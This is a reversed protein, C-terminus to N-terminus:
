QELGLIAQAIDGNSKELAKRADDESCKAQEMVLRVDDGRDKEVKEMDGTIQLSEQGMMEVRMVQPNKISYDGDRTRIIVDYADMEEQKVGMKKMAQKLMKPNVGPIM